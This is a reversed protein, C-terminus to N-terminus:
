QLVTDGLFEMRQNSGLTLNNFGVSRHTFARALLRIHRFEIGIINEFENLEKLRPIKDILFRDGNPQQMQIPHKKYNIWLDRLVVNEKILQEDNLMQYFYDQCSTILQSSSSSPTTACCNTLLSLLIIQVVIRM